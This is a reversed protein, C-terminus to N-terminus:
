CNNWSHANSARHTENAKITEYRVLAHPIITKNFVGVFYRSNEGVKDTFVVSKSSKKEYKSLM